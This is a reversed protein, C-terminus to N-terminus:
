VLFEVTYGKKNVFINFINYIKIFSRYKYFEIFIDFWKEIQYNKYRIKVFKSNYLINLHSIDTKRKEIANSKIYKKM